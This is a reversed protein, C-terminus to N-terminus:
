TESPMKSDWHDICVMEEVPRRRVPGHAGKPYGVPLLAAIVWGDPVGVLERLEPECHRYWTTVVTGLGHSRAALIFNQMAPYISAGTYLEEMFPTREACFLVYAPVRDFNEVLEFMSRTFRARRSNDNPDPKDLNMLNAYETWGNKYTAGLLQRAAASRLVCIRWKQQNSGSPAFVAAQLCSRLAADPIPDPRFRRIARCTRMAELLEM